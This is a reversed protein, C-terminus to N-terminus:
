TERPLRTTRRFDVLLHKTYEWDREIGQWRIKKADYSFGQIGNEAAKRVMRADFTGIGKCLSLLADQFAKAEQAIAEPKKTGDVKSAAPGYELAEARGAERGVIVGLEFAAFPKMFRVRGLIEQTRESYDETTPEPIAAGEEPTVPVSLGCLALSYEFAEIGAKRPADWLKRARSKERAAVEAIKVEFADAEAGDGRRIATEQAEHLQRLEEMDRAEERRTEEEVLKYFHGGPMGKYRPRWEEGWREGAKRQAEEEEPTLDERPDETVGEPSVRYTRKETPM